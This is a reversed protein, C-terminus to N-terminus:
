HFNAKEFLKNFGIKKSLLMSVLALLIGCPVDVFVHQKTLLTSIFVLISFIINFYLIKKNVNCKYLVYIVITSVFCHFSPCAPIVSDISYILKLIKDFINNGIIEPRTVKTPYILFCFLGILSGIIVASLLKYAIKSDQKLVVLAAYIWQVFALIYIVVFFSCVPIAKDIPLALFHAKELPIVLKPIQYALLYVFLTLVTPIINRKNYKM